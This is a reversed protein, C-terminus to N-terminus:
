FNCAKFRYSLIINVSFCYNIYPFKLQVKEVCQFYKSFLYKILCIKMSHLNISAGFDFVVSGLEKIIELDFLVEMLGVSLKMIFMVILFTNLTFMM